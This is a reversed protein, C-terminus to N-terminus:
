TTSRHVVVIFVKIHVACHKSNFQNNQVILIRVLCYIIVEFQLVLHRSNLGAVHHLTVLTSPLSIHGIHFINSTNLTANQIRIIIYLLQFM